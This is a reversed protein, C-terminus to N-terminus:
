RQCAKALVVATELLCDLQRLVVFPVVKGYESQKFDGRLIEAISWTFSSLNQIKPEAMRM